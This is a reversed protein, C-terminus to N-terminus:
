VIWNTLSSRKALRVLHHTEILKVNLEYAASVASKTYGNVAIVVPIGGGRSCVGAIERIVSVGIPKAHAKCQCWYTDQAMRVILDIGGDGSGKTMQVHCARRHLFNYVAREFAVGRQDKWYSFGQETQRDNWDAVEADFEANAALFARLNSSLPSPLFIRRVADIVLKIPISLIFSVWLMGLGSLIQSISFTISDFKDIINFLYFISFIALIFALVHSFTDIRNQKHEALAKYQEGSKDDPLGFDEPWPANLHDPIEPADSHNFMVGANEPSPQKEM